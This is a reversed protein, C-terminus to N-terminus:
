KEEAETQIVGSEAVSAFSRPDSEVAELKDRNKSGSGKGM